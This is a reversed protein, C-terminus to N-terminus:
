RIERVWAVAAYDGAREVVARVEMGIWPDDGGDALRGFLRPGEALAVCLVMYPMLPEFEPLYGRRYRVWSHVTGAGSCERWGWERGGCWPCVPAIPWRVRGCEACSQVVLRGAALADLWPASQATRPPLLAAPEGTGPFERLELTV